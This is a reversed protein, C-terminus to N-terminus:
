EVVLTVYYNFNNMYIPNRSKVSNNRTLYLKGNADATYAFNSNLTFDYVGLCYIAFPQFYQAWTFKVIRLAYQQNNSMNMLVYYM